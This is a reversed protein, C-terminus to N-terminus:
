DGRLSVLPAAHAARLAPLLCAALTTVILLLSTVAFTMVDYRRVGFLLAQVFRVSMLAAAIGVGLGVIVTKLGGAMILRVIDRPQAGLAMRVGMERQRQHVAYSSLGYVGIGALLLTLGGFFYGLAAAVRERSLSLDAIYDLTWFRVVYERGLGEVAQELSKRDIDGDSRIIIAKWAAQAGEQLQAAYVSPVAGKRLDYIAADAVVGVVELKQRNPATGIRIGKGLPSTEGFLQRALQQSVLAVRASRGNDSPSLDRGQVIPIHLAGFFNPGVANFAAPSEGRGDLTAVTQTNVFGAGPIITTLSVDRARPVAQIREVLLPLYSDTDLGRYANPRPYVSVLSVGAREYHLETARLERLSRVLLGADVLLALSLAVQVILIRAGFRGAGGSRAGQRLHATSEVRTVHWASAVCMIVSAALTILGAFAFV